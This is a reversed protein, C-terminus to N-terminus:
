VENDPFFGEFDPPQFADERNWALPAVIRAVDPIELEKEKKLQPGSGMPRGDDRAPLTTLRDLPIIGQGSAERTGILGIPMTVIFILLAPRCRMAIGKCSEM